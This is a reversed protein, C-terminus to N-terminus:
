RRGGSRGNWGSSYSKEKVIELLELVLKVRDQEMRKLSSKLSDKGLLTSPSGKKYKSKLAEYEQPTLLAKSSFFSALLLARKQPASFESLIVSVPEELTGDTGSNHGSEPASSSAPAAGNSTPTKGNINLKKGGKSISWSSLLDSSITSRIAQLIGTEDESIKEKSAPNRSSRKEVAQMMEVAYASHSLAKEQLNILDPVMESSISNALSTIELSGDEGELLCGVGVLKAMVQDVVNSLLTSRDEMQKSLCDYYSPNRELSRYLYTWSLYDLLDVKKKLNGTKVEELVNKFLNQFEDEFLTSELPLGTTMMRQIYSIQSSQCLVLCEGPPNPQSQTGKRLAFSELEVLDTVDYDTVKRDVLPMSVNDKSKSEVPVIKIFQTSMIIVLHAKVQLTSTAERPAILVRILGSEFMEMILNQDRKSMGDHYVGIGHQLPEFLNGDNLISLYPEIQEPSTGGMLPDSDIDAASSRVLDSAVQRCQARSPLFIITPGKSSTVKIKDYAPKVMTKLLNLSHPLDFGQFSLQLPSPRDKPHFSYVSSPKISLWSSLSSADQLSSSTAVLRLSPTKSRILRSLALECVSSLLHLDEALVLQFRDLSSSSMMLARLLVQPTTFIVEVESRRESIDRPSSALYVSLHSSKSKSRFSDAHRRASLYRPHVVLISIQGPEKATRRFFVFSLSLLSDATLVRRVWTM